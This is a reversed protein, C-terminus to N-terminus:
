PGEEDQLPYPPQPAGCTLETDYPDSWTGVQRLRRSPKHHPAVPRRKAGPVRQRFAGSFPEGTRPAAAASIVTGEIASATKERDQGDTTLIPLAATPAM